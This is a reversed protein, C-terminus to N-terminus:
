KQPPNVEGLSKVDGLEVRGESVRAMLLGGSDVGFTQSAFQAMIPLAEDFANRRQNISFRTEWLLRIKKEKLSSQFDFARLVVFYRNSELADMMQSHVQKVINSRVNNGFGQAFTGERDFGLLAANKIDLLDRFKGKREHYGGVTTGWFVMILLNTANPDQTLVYNQGALPAEMAKSITDFGLADITEDRAAGPTDAGAPGAVNFGGNGFAYTEPKLSGDPLRARVYSNFVKSSVATIGEISNSALARPPAALPISGMFLTM